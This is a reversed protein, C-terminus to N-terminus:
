VKKGLMSNLVDRPRLQELGMISLIQNLAVNPESVNKVVHTTIKWTDFEGNNEAFELHFKIDENNHGMRLMREVMTVYDCMVYISELSDKSLKSLQKLGNAEIFVVSIGYEHAANLIDQKLLGYYHGKYSVKVIFEKKFFEMKEVHVYLEADSDDKGFERTTYTPIYHVGIGMLQTVLLTKGSAHPGVLAYIKNAM